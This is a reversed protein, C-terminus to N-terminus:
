DIEVSAHCRENPSFTNKDFIVDIKSTGQSVCCWTTVPHESTERINAQVTKLPERILLVQKYRMTDHSSQGALIAKISYKVIAKPNAHAHGNRYM